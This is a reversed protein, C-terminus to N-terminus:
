REPTEPILANFNGDIIVLRSANQRVLEGM